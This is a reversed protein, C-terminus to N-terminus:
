KKFGPPAYRSAGMGEGHRRQQQGTPGRSAPSSQPPPRRGSQTNRPGAPITVPATPPSSPRPSTPSQDARPGSPSDLVPAKMQGPPPFGRKGPGIPTNPPPDPGKPTSAPSVSTCVSSHTDADHRRRQIPDRPGPLAVAPPEINYEQLEQRTQSFTAGVADSAHDEGRYSELDHKVCNELRQIKGELETIYEGKQKLEAHLPRNYRRGGRERKHEDETQTAQETVEKAQVSFAEEPKQNASEDSKDQATVRDLKTSLEEIQQKLQEVHQEHQQKMRNAESLRFLYGTEPDHVEDHLEASHAKESALEERLVRTTDELADKERHLAKSRGKGGRALRKSEGPVEFGEISQAHLAEGAIEQLHAFRFKRAARDAEQTMRERTASAQLEAQATIGNIKKEMLDNQTKKAACARSLITKCYWRRALKSVLKLGKQATLATVLMKRDERLTQKEMILQDYEEACDKVAEALEEEAEALAEKLAEVEKQHRATDEQRALTHLMRENEQALTAKAARESCDKEAQQLKRNSEQEASRNTEERAKNEQKLKNVEREHSTSEEQLAALKKAFDTQARQLQSQSEQQVSLVKSELNQNEQQLAKVKRELLVRQADQTELKDKVRLVILGPLMESRQKKEKKESSKATKNNSAAAHIAKSPATDYSAAAFTAKSRASLSISLALLALLAFLLAFPLCSAGRPEFEGITTTPPPRIVQLIRVIEVQQTPTPAPLQNAFHGLASGIDVAPNRPALSHAHQPLAQSLVVIDSSPFLYDVFAQKIKRTLPAAIHALCMLASGGTAAM